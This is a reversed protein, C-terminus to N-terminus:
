ARATVTWCGATFRVVDGDVFPAFAAQATEVIRPRLAPDVERLAHAVPGLQTLYRVLDHAPLTCVVDTPTLEVESWGGDALIQEVRARDAFAFQGPGDTRRLPQDPLLPAVAREATTMFPNDRPGRWVILRLGAGDAAAARLNAFATVPDDFFMVGFRSVILEFRGPPFRHRQADAEVFEVALGERAARERAVALM